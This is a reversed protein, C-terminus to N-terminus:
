TATWHELQRHVHADELNQREWVAYDAYQIPLPALPSSRGALLADYLTPLERGLIGLSWGDAAIHHVVTALVHDGDALRILAGVLPAQTLDFPRAAVQRGLRLAETEREGEDLHSLDVRELVLRASEEVVQIPQGDLMTFRTRLAEHRRVVEDLSQQLVAINLKGRLRMAIPINYAASGPDLRDLFWLRQQSSSLPLPVDRRVRSISRTSSANADAVQLLEIIEPKRRVLESQLAPTLTGAPANVRLREGELWLKVDRQQLDALFAM